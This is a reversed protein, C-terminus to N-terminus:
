CDLAEITRVNIGREKLRTCSVIVSRWDGLLVGSKFAM